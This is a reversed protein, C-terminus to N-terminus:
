FRANIWGAVYNFFNKVTNSYQGPSTECEKCPTIGHTAGEIVVFDKDKSAAVEYHVENDRIFFHGGMATILIPISINRLACPTSNNTSCWEIGDMSDTARIANASLFSRLTLLNTGGKFNANTTKAEPGAKRVSEVVQSVVTGDNRILKQPKLTGHHISPDLATLRAGEGRAILFVDDDPYSGQGNQIRQFKDSATQILRNMRSAQAQFYKRQFTESYHSSGKPNYGNQASFPDLEANIQRPDAENTVAPNLSRVALAAIGPHADVFVIGDAKPLGALKNDCQTLKGPGQCYAPGKEAVAEYFSMTAGGGSHGFLVVKTIGPQKRLFEVGSKVDLAIDEWEVSAENNDFRSNMALVAFGRKPLETTAMHALVNGTRHMILVAVHPAAGADPKYLVGKVTGPSFPVYQSNSQAFSLAACGLVGLIAIRFRM